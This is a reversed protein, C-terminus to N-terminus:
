GCGGGEPTKMFLDGNTVTLNHGNELTVRIIFTYRAPLIDETDDGDLELTLTDGSVVLSKTLEAGEWVALADTLDLDPVTWVFARNESSYYDDGIIVTMASSNQLPSVLSITQAGLASVIDSVTPLENHAQVRIYQWPDPIADLDTTYGRFAWVGLMNFLVEYGYLGWLNSLMTPEVLETGNPRVIRIYTSEVPLYAYGDSDTFSTYVTETTNLRYSM